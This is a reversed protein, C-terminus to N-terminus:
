ASSSRSPLSAPRHVLSTKRKQGGGGWTVAAPRAVRGEFTDMQPAGVATQRGQPRRTQQSPGAILKKPALFHSGYFIKNPPTEIFLCVFFFLWHAVPHDAEPFALKTESAARTQSSKIPTQETRTRFHSYVMMPHFRWRESWSEVSMECEWLQSILLLTTM